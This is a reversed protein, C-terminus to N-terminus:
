YGPDKITPIDDYEKIMKVIEFFGNDEAIRLATIGNYDKIMTDVGAKLLEDVEQKRNARCAHHLPTCGKNDQADINICDKTLLIKMFQVDFYGCRSHLVTEGRHNVLDLRAGYELLLNFSKLTIASHLPTSGNQPNPDSGAKLLEEVYTDNMNICAIHLPTQGCADQIDLSAGARLLARICNLNGSRSCAIHLPTRGNNCVINIDAVIKTLEKVCKISGCYCAKHFPTIGNKDRIEIPIDAKVLARLAKVDDCICANFVSM